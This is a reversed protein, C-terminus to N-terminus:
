SLLFGVFRHQPDYKRQITKLKASASGSLYPLKNVAMNDDNMQGGVAIDRVADITRLAWEECKADDSPDYWVANPSLYSHGQLSYAMDPLSQVEGWGLWLYWSEKSPFDSYFPRTRRIIEAPSANSWAGDCVYRAGTPSLTNPSESEGPFITAVKRQSATVKNSAPCSELLDLASDCEAETYALANGVINIFPKGEILMGRLNAEMYKPLNGQIDGFWTLVEELTEEPFTYTSFKMFHPRPYTKLFFRVAVGPFGAGGGRAAWLYESNESESAHVLEGDANVLDLAILQACAPGWLRSNWGHGGALIFGGLGIGYCHGSPFMLDYQDRLVKNFAQGQWAPSVTAIRTTPDVSLEKMRTLNVLIANDRIHPAVWSHGGSRAGIQWGKRKALRVAACVDDISEAMVIARPYRNPKRANWVAAQRYAEYREEGKFTIKGKLIAEDRNRGVRAPSGDATSGTVEARATGALGTGAVSLAAAAASIVRRRNIM